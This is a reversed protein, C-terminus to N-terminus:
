PCPALLPFGFGYYLWDLYIAVDAIDQRNWEQGGAEQWIDIERTLDAPSHVKRHPRFHINRYHCAYCHIEYLLRGRCPDPPQAVSAWSLVGLTVVLLFRLRM